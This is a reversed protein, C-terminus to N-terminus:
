LPAIGNSHVVRVAVKVGLLRDPAYTSLLRQNTSGVVLGSGNELCTVTLVLRPFRKILIAGVRSLRAYTYTARKWHASIGEPAVSLLRAVPTTPYGVGYIEVIHPEPTVAGSFNPAAEATRILRAVYSGNRFVSTPPLGQRHVEGQAMDPVAASAPGSALVGLAFLVAVLRLHVHVGRMSVFKVFWMM